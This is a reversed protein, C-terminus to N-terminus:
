LRIIRGNPLENGGEACPIGSGPLRSYGPERLTEGVYAAIDNAINQTLANM